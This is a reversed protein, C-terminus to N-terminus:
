NVAATVLWQSAVPSYRLKRKMWPVNMILTANGEINNGNGDVTLVGAGGVVENIEFEMWDDPDEPLKLTGGGTADFEVLRQDDGTLTYTTATQDALVLDLSYSYEVGATFGIESARADQSEAYSM